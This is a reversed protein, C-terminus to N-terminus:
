RSVLDTHYRLRTTAWGVGDREETQWEVADLEYGFKNSGDSKSYNQLTDIVDDTLALSGYTADLLYADSRNYEDVQYRVMLWLVMEFRVMINLKNNSGTSFTRTDVKLNLPQIVAFQDTPPYSLSKRPDLAYFCASTSFLPAAGTTLATQVNQVLTTLTAM